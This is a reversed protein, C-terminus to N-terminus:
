FQYGSRGDYIPIVSKSDATSQPNQYSEQLFMDIMLDTNGKQGYLTAMQFNVPLKPEKELATQYALLAYDILAKREFVYAIGYVENANKKIKDIAQNYYKNAKEQNKQL